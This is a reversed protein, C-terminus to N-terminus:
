LLKDSAWFEMFQFMKWAEDNLWQSVEILISFANKLPQLDGSGVLYTVRQHNLKYSLQGFLIPCNVSIAEIFAYPMM